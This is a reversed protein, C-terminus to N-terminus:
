KPPGALGPGPGRGAAVGVAGGGAAWGPTWVPARPRCFRPRPPPRPPLPPPPCSFVGVVSEGWGSRRRAGGAPDRRSAAPGGWWWGGVWRGRARLRRCCASWRRWGGFLWPATPPTTTFSPPFVPPLPGPRPPRAFSPPPHRRRHFASFRLISPCFIPLGSGGGADGRRGNEPGGRTGVGGGGGGSSPSGLVAAPSASRPTPPRAPPHRLSLSLSLSLPPPPPPPSLSLLPFSLRASFCCSPPRPSGPLTRLGRLGRGCGLLAAPEPAPGPRCRGAGAAASLVGTDNNVHGRALLRAAAGAAWAERRMLGGRADPPRGWARGNLVGVGAHRAGASHEATAPATGPSGNLRRLARAGGAHQQPCKQQTM